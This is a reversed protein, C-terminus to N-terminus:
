GRLFVEIRGHSPETSGEVVLYWTGAKVRVTADLESKRGWAMEYPHTASKGSEYAARDESSLLMLNVPATAIMRVRMSTPNSVTFRFLEYQSATIEFRRVEAEPPSM